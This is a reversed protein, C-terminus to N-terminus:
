NQNLLDLFVMCPIDCSKSWFLLHSSFLHVDIQLIIEPTAEKPLILPQPPRTAFHHNTGVTKKADSQLSARPTVATYSLGIWDLGDM